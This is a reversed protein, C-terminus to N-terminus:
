KLLVDITATQGAGIADLAYGLWVGGANKNVKPTSSSDYFLMDGVAVASNGGADVAKVSLKSVGNCKLVINGDDDTSTLAVGTIQGIAVPDGATIGSAAVKIRDGREYVINSM